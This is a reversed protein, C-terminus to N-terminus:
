IRKGQIYNIFACCSVVMFKAEDFGPRDSDDMLAHRIGTSEDNTYVYLKEFASKLMSPIKIGNKELKNLSKGLTNEDTIKRCMAEVASISEKISNRYDPNPRTSLHKLADSLHTKVSDSVKMADVIAVIEEEDTIQVVRDDVVRYAYSLRSFSNNIELEFKNVIKDYEFNGGKYGKLVRLSFDLPNMKEYWAHREDQLFSTSVGSYSQNHSRFDAKRENLFYCWVYEELEQYTYKQVQWYSTNDRDYDDLSDKLKDYCTCLANIINTDLKERILTDQPTTYGYRDSFLGKM